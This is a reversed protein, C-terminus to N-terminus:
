IGRQWRQKMKLKRENSDTISWLSNGPQPLISRYIAEAVKNNTLETLDLIVGMGYAGISRLNSHTSFSKIAVHKIKDDVILKLKTVPHWGNSVDRNGYLVYDAISTGFDSLRITSAKEISNADLLISTIENGSVKIDIHDIFLTRLQLKSVTSSDQYPVIVYEGADVWRFGHITLGLDVVATYIDLVSCVEEKGDDTDVVVYEIPNQSDASKDRCICKSVFLM